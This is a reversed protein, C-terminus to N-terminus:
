HVTSNFNTYTIYPFPLFIMPNFCVTYKSSSSFQHTESLGHIQLYLINYLSFLLFIMPNFRVTYKSSSSFHTNLLLLFIIPKPCVTSKFIYSIIYPFPLFIMPNSRVTYKSSSSFHHTKSSGHIQFYLLYYLSFPLNIM